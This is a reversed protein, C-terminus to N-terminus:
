CWMLQYTDYFTSIYFRNQFANQVPNSPKLWPLPLCCGSLKNTTPIIGAYLCESTASHSIFARIPGLAAANSEGVLTNRSKQLASIGQTFVNLDQLKSITGPLPCTCQETTGNHVLLFCVGVTAVRAFETLPIEANTKSYWCFFACGSLACIRLEASPYLVPFGSELRLIHIVVICKLLKFCQCRVLPM